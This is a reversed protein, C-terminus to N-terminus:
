GYYLLWVQSLFVYFAIHVNRWVEQRDRVCEKMQQVQSLQQQLQTVHQQHDCTEGSKGVLKETAEKIKAVREQLQYVMLQFFTVTFIHFIRKRFGSATMSDKVTNCTYTVLLSFTKPFFVTILVAVFLVFVLPQGGICYM